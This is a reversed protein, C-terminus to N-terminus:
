IFRAVETGPDVIGSPSVDSIYVDHYGNAVVEDEVASFYPSQNLLTIAATVANQFDTSAFDSISIRLGSM